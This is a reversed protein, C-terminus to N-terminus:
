QCFHYLVNAHSFNKIIQSTKMDYLLCILARTTEPSDVQTLVLLSTDLEIIFPTTPFLSFITKVTYEYDSFLLFCHSMYATYGQPYFGTHITCNNILSKMWHSYAEYKVKTKQLVPTINKRFDNKFAHFLKWEDQDWHLLPALERTKDEFRTSSFEMIHDYVQELTDNWTLYEVRPTYSCYKLGRYAMSEYGKLKSFDLLKNTIIFTNWDGMTVAQYVINPFRKLGTLIMLSRTFSVSGLTLRRTYSFVGRLGIM